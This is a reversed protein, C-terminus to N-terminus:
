GGPDFHIVFQEQEENELAGPLYRRVWQIAAEGDLSLMQRVLCALFTGTRGLGGHCHVSVNRGERLLAETQKMTERLAMSDAPPRFDPIPLQLVSMGTQRYLDPLDRGAHKMIERPEALIVVADVAKEQYAEWIQGSPDYKGFPMPSSFLRGPTEIPFEFLM